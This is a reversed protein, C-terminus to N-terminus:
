LARGFRPSHRWRHRLLRGMGAVGMRATVTLGTRSGNHYSIDNIFAVHHKVAGSVSTNVMFGYGAGGSCTYGESVAWGEVAWNNKNVEIEATGTVTGVISCAGVDTGGCLLTAFYIGGTGDIGGSTSPCNSVAGWNGLARYAGAAAVIVDGCVLAHNPTAWPSSATGSNSDSGTPSMYYTHLAVFSVSGSTSPSGSSAAVIPVTPASTASAAADSSGTATVTATLTHGADSSVPIYTASTAGAIPAKNGAWQYGFSTAGTWTGTTSALVQGVQATGSVVPPELDTPAAAVNAATVTLATTKQALLASWAPNFVAVYMTYTGAKAGAPVTWSYAQVVPAGAQFKVFFVNQAIATSAGPPVLSFEVPYNSANQNSAITATFVVTKGPQVSAPSATASSMTITQARAPAPLAILALVMTFVLIEIFRAVYGGLPALRAGGAFSATAGRGTTLGPLSLRATAATFIMSCNKM